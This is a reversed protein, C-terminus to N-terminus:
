DAPPQIIEIQSKGIVRTNMLGGGLITLMKEIPINYHAPQDFTVCAGSITVPTGSDKGAKEEIIRSIRDAMQKAMTKDIGYLCVIFEDASFRGILDMERIVERILLHVNELLVHGGQVGHIGLYGTYNDIDILIITLPSNYAKARALERRYDELFANYKLAKSAEDIRALHRSVYILEYKEMLLGILLALVQIAHAEDESFEGEEARDCHVYGITRQNQIIPALCVCTFEHELKIAEYDRDAPKMNNRTVLEHKLLVGAVIESQVNRRWKKVFSYSLKRSIKVFVEDTNDDLTIVALTQYPIFEKSGEMLVHLAEELSLSGGFEHFMRILWESLRRCEPTM